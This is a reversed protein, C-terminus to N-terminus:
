IPAGQLGMWYRGERRENDSPGRRSYGVEEERGVCGLAEIAGDGCRGVALPM